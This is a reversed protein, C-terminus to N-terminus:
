IAFNVIDLNMIDLNTIDLNTRTRLQATLMLNFSKYKICGELKDGVAVM